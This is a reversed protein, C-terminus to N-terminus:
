PHINQENLEFANAIQNQGRRRDRRQV